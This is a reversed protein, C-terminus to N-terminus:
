TAAASSRSCRSARPAGAGGARDAPEDAPHRPGLTVVPHHEVLLLVDEALRAPSGGAGRARAPLELVEGYPRVAWIRSASRRRDRQRWGGPAGASSRAAVTAPSRRPSWCPLPAAARCRAAHYILMAPVTAFASVLSLGGRRYTSDIPALLRWAVIGALVLGGLTGAVLLYCRAASRRTAPAPPRGCGSDLM